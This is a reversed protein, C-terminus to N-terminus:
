RSICEDKGDGELKSTFCTSLTVFNFTITGVIGMTLTNNITTTTFTTTLDFCLHLLGNNKSLVSGDSEQGTQSVKSFIASLNSPSLLCLCFLVVVLYMKLCFRLLLKKQYFERIKVQNDLLIYGITTSTHIGHAPRCTWTMMQVYQM